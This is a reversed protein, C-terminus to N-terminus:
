NPRFERVLAAGAALPAAFFLRDEALDRGMTRTPLGSVSYGDLDVAEERVGHLAGRAAEITATPDGAGDPWLSALGAPVPIEM